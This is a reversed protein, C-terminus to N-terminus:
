QMVFSTFYVGDVDGEVGHRELISNIIEASRQRLKERGQVQNLQEPTQESFLMILEDRIAAKHKKLANVVEEHSTQLQVDAELYRMRKSDGFNVTLSPELAVYKAKDYDIQTDAAAKETQQMGPPVIWGAAIAAVLGLTIALLATAATLLVYIMKPM